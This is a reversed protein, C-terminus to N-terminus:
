VAHNKTVVISRATPVFIRVIHYKLGSIGSMRDGSLHKALSTKTSYDLIHRM